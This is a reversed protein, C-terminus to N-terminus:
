SKPPVDIIGAEDLGADIVAQVLDHMDDTMVVSKVPAVKGDEVRKWHVVDEDEDDVGILGDRLWFPTGGAVYVRILTGQSVVLSHSVSKATKM